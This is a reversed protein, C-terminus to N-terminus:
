YDQWHGTPGEGGHHSEFRAPKDMLPCGNRIEQVARCTLYLSGDSLLSDKFGCQFGIAHPCDAPKIKQSNTSLSNGDVGSNIILFWAM